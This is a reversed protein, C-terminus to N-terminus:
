RGEGRSFEMIRYVLAWRQEDKFHFMAMPTDPIGTKLVEFIKKPDGKSYTWQDFPLIFNRPKTKLEAAKWGKGDGNPGHCQICNEEFLKRGVRLLEPTKEPPKQSLEQFTACSFFMFIALFLGFSAALLRWVFKKM